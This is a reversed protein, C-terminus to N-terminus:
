ARDVCVDRNKRIGHRRRIRFLHSQLIEDVKDAVDVHGQMRRAGSQAAADEVFALDDPDVKKPVVINNVALSAADFRNGRLDFGQRGWKM